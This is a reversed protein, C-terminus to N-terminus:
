KKPFVGQEIFYAGREVIKAAYCAKEQWSYTTTKTYDGILTAIPGGGMTALKDPSVPSLAKKVNGCGFNHNHLMIITNNRYKENLYKAADLYECIGLEIDSRIDDLNTTAKTKNMHTGMLGGYKTNKVTPVGTSENAIMGLIINPDVKYKNCTEILINKYGYKEMAALTEPGRNKTRKVEATVDDTFQHAEYNFFGEGLSLQAAAEEDAKVLAKPRAFAFYDKDYSLKSCKIGTKTSEAHIYQEDGIYVGVHHIPPLSAKEPDSPLPRQSTFWLVDGPLMKDKEDKNFLLGGASKKCLPYLSKTNGSFEKIGASAYAASVLSSCDWYSIGDKAKDLHCDRLSQSYGAKGEQMLRYAEKVYDVIKQRVESAVASYKSPNSSANGSTDGFGSFTYNDSNFALTEYEDEETLVDKYEPKLTPESESEESEVKEAKIGEIEYEAVIPRETELIVDNWDMKFSDEKKWLEKFTKPKTSKETLDAILHEIHLEETRTFEAYDTLNMYAMQTDDLVQEINSGTEDLIAYIQGIIPEYRTCSLCQDLTMSQGDNIRDDHLCRICKYKGYVDQGGYYVCNIQMRSASRYLNRMITAMNNELRALRRETRRSITFLEDQIMALNKAVEPGIISSVHDCDHLRFNVEDIKVKPQHSELEKIKDDVPFPDNNNLPKGSSKKVADKHDNINFTKQRKEFEDASIKVNSSATTAGDNSANSVDIAGGPPVILDPYIPEVYLPNEPVVKTALTDFNKSCDCSGTSKNQAIGFSFNIAKDSSFEGTSTAATAQYNKIYEIDRDDIEFKKAIENPDKAHEMYMARLNEEPYSPNMKEIDEDSYMKTETESNEGDEDENNGKDDHKMKNLMGEVCDVFTRWKNNDLFHLPSALQNLDFGRFFSDISLDHEKLITAILKITKKEITNYDQDKPITMLVSIGKENPKGGYVAGSIYTSKGGGIHKTQKNVPIYNYIDNADVIYHYGSEPSVNFFWEGLEEDYNEAEEYTGDGKAYPVGFYNCIGRAIREASEQQFKTSTMLEHAEKENTMFGLEVLIAAETGTAMCNCMALEQYVVGRDRQGSKSLEKQVCDALNRSKGAKAKNNHIHTSVGEASTYKSADGHANFHISVSIDCDASFIQSQRTKLPVDDDDKGNSDNWATKNTEFGCRILASNLYSAVAANAYHERYQEGKKALETDRLLPPTRKGGTNSGHGADINVKYREKPTRVTAISKPKSDGYDATTISIADKTYATNRTVIFAGPECYLIVGSPKEMDPLKKLDKDSNVKTIRADIM